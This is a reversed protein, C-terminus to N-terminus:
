RVKVEKKLTPLAALVNEAALKAGIHQGYPLLSELSTESDSDPEVKIEDMIPQLM